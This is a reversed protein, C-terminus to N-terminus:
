RMSVNTAKIGGGKNSMLKTLAMTLVDVMDDHKGSPFTSCENLFKDVYMGDKLVVRGSEIIPTISNVRSVKDQTPAKDEIVNLATERKLQQVISKGSAKPEIYIRSSRSYGNATTFRKIEKILEPFEMRVAVVEKIYLINNLKCVAMMATPDNNQKSTYATDLFFDVKANPIEKVVEFWSTKIIGGDSPSPLQEYQGSYGYGGLGVKFGNLVSESLRQPFLLGDIYNSRLNSPKVVESDEAPLCIHEWNDPELELLMGTLDNEHLRQM